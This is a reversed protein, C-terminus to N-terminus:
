SSKGATSTHNLYNIATGILSSAVSFVSIHEECDDLVEMITDTVLRTKGDPAPQEKMDLTVRTHKLKNM